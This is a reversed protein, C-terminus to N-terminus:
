TRYFRSHLNKYDEKVLEADQLLVKKHKLLAASILQFGHYMM